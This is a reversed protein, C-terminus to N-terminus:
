KRFNKDKRRLMAAKRIEEVENKIEVAFTDAILKLVQTAINYNTFDNLERSFGTKDILIIDYTKTEVTTQGGRYQLTQSENTPRLEVKPFNTICIWDGLRLSFLDYYKRVSKKTPDVQIGTRLLLLLIGLTLLCTAVIINGFFSLGGVIILVVGPFFYEFTFGLKIEQRTMVYNRM